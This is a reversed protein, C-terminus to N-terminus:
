VRHRKLDKRSHLEALKKRRHEAAAYGDLKRICMEERQRHRARRKEQEEKPEGSAPPLDYEVEMSDYCDYDPRYVVREKEACHLCCDYDCDACRWRLCINPLLCQFPIEHPELGGDENYWYRCRDCFSCEHAGSAYYIGVAEVTADEAAKLAAEYASQEASGPKAEPKGTAHWKAKAAAVAAVAPTTIGNTAHDIAQQVSEGYFARYFPHAANFPEPLQSPFAEDGRHSTCFGCMCEGCDLHAYKSLPDVYPTTEAGADLLSTGQRVWSQCYDDQVLWREAGPLLRDRCRFFQQAAQVEAMRDEEREGDKPALRVLELPKACSPCTRSVYCEGRKIGFFDRVACLPGAQASRPKGCEREHALEEPSIYEAPSDEAPFWSSGGDRSCMVSTGVRHALRLPGVSLEQLSPANFAIWEPHLLLKESLGFPSVSLDPLRPQEAPQVACRELLNEKLIREKYEIVRKRTGSSTIPPTAEKCVTGAVLSPDRALAIAITIIEKKPAFGGAGKLRQQVASILQEDLAANAVAAM